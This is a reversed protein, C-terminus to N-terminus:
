ESTPLPLEFKGHVERVKANFADQSPYRGAGVEAMMWKQIEEAAQAQKKELRKQAKEPSEHRELLGSSIEEKKRNEVVYRVMGLIAQEDLEGLMSNAEGPTTPLEVDAVEIAKVAGTASCKVIYEGPLTYGTEKDTSEAIESEDWNFKWKGDKTIANNAEAVEKNPDTFRYQRKVQITEMIKDEGRKPSKRTIALWVIVMKGYGVKKTLGV